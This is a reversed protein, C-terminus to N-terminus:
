RLRRRRGVPCAVAVAAASQGTLEPAPSGPRAIGAALQAARPIPQTQSNPWPASRGARARAGQPCLLTLPLKPIHHPEAKEALVEAGISLAKGALAQHRAADLEPPPTYAQLFAEVLRADSAEDPEQRLEVELGDRFRRPMGGRLIAAQAQIRVRERLEDHKPDPRAARMIAEAGTSAAGCCTTRALTRMSSPGLHHLRLGALKDGPDEVQAPTVGPSDRPSVRCLEVANAEGLNPYVLPLVIGDFTEFREDYASLLRGTWSADAPTALASAM